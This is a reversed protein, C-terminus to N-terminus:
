FLSQCLYKGTSNAFNKLFAIKFFLEQKRILGSCFDTRRDAIFVLNLQCFTNAAAFILVKTFPPVKVLPVYNRSKKM